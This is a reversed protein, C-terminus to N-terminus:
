IPKIQDALCLIQSLVDNPLRNTTDIIVADEAPRLPSHQRQSDIQDRRLVDILITEYSDNSGHEQREQWRRRAREQPSATIYLKLPANPVVVTGIDRGVMVVQGKEALIRQRKVMEERVLKYASIQSVHADVSASRLAWTVDKGAVLVTYMRGDTPQQAPMIEIEIQQSLRLVEQEDHININQELATLTVARYMSGTDLLLFGLKEALMQGITTKGSAAPGDIAILQLLPSHSM